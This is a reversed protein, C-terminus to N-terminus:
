GHFRAGGLAGMGLLDQPSLEREGHAEKYAKAVMRVAKARDPVPLMASVDMQMGGNIFLWIQEDM